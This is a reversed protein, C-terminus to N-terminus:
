QGVTVVGGQAHLTMPKTITFQEGYSGARMFIDSGSIVAFVGELATDFPEAATGRETGVWAWDVYIQAAPSLFPELLPWAEDLRGYWAGDDADCAWTACSATGRVRAASDFIPSGSAGMEIEGSGNPNSVHFSQGSVCSTVDSTKTGFTIRKWSGDSHHIGTASSGDSWYNADWGEFTVGGTNDSSMGVLTYDTNADNVLLVIGQTQPLTNPNSPNGGNCTQSQYFWTVLLSDANTETVGCHRATMFLPTFDNSSRNLMAGSCFFAFETDVFSLAGVGDAYPQWTAYCTVDLHCPLIAEAGDGGTGGPAMRYQNLLGDLALPPASPDAPSSPALYYEVYVEDGYVTPTWFTGSTTAFRDDFPGLAYNPDKSSYVILEGNGAPPWDRIRLRIAKANTAAVALTWMWGGDDMQTWQGSAAAQPFAQVVGMRLPGFEQQDDEQLLRAVSLPPTVVRNAGAFLDFRSLSRPVASPVVDAGVPKTKADVIPQQAVVQLALFCASPAALWAVLVRKM